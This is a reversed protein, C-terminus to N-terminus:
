FGVTQLTNIILLVLPVMFMIIMLITLIFSAAKIRGPRKEMSRRLTERERTRLDQELVHLSTRQDVGQYVGCLVATLSSFSPLGLRADMGRLAAEQNGTKLGIILRDLEAGMAKGTVKRYKEFFALLDRNDQLSYNLTEVLRPLEAEIERNLVEVKKRIAQMGQFYAILAAVATLLAFLPIGLPIFMLGSIALLFAQAMVTSVYEKPTQTIRLRLFDAEMRKERYESMPFLKSILKAMPMLASQLKETVSKKGHINKIAAATKGSPLCFVVQAFRYLGMSTLIVALTYIIWTM